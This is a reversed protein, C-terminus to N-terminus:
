SVEQYGLLLEVRRNQISVLRTLEIAREQQLRIINEMRFLRNM